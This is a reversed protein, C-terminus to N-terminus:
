PHTQINDVSIRSRPDVCLMRSLLDQLQPSVPPMEFTGKAVNRFLSFVNEGSFPYRGTVMFYLTVGAAWVDIKAADFSDAGSAIEPSQFAPSGVASTSLMLPDYISFCEAVGFDIIKLTGDVSLLLNSPKLDRHATSHSHLYSMGGVLQRMYHRAESEELRGMASKEVVEELDGLCYELVVFTKEKEENYLVEVLEVLNPHQLKRLLSIERKVNDVGNPIKKLKKGKMIKIAVRRLTEKSVAERV